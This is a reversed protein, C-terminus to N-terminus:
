AEKLKFGAARLEGNRGLRVCGWAGPKALTLAKVVWEAVRAERNKIGQGCVAMDVSMLPLKKLLLKLAISM